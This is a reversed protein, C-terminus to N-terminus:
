SQDIIFRFVDDLRYQRPLKEHAQLAPPWVKFFPYEQPTYEEPWVRPVEPIKFPRDSKDPNKAPHILRGVLQEPDEHPRTAICSSCIFRGVQVSKHLTEVFEDTLQRLLLPLRAEREFTRVLDCKNAVLAVKKIHSRGLLQGGRHQNKLLKSLQDLLFRQEDYAGRGASLLSPIDILVILSDCHNLEHFLPKLLRNRYLGYHDEQTEVFEPMRLRAIGSLPIFERPGVGDGPPLGLYRSQSVSEAAGGDIRGGLLDIMFTSPATCTKYDFIMKTLTVKYLRILREIYVEQADLHALYPRAARLAESDEEINFLTRDAWDAYRETRAISLDLLREMPFTFFKIDDRKMQTSRKFQLRFRQISHHRSPWIGGGARMLRQAFTRFPFVEPSEEPHLSGIGKLTLPKDERLEGLRFYKADYNYLHNLLSLLFVSKGSGFTGTIAIKRPNVFLGM